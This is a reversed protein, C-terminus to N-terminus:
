NAINQGIELNKPWFSRLYAQYFSKTLRALIFKIPRVFSGEPFITLKPESFALKMPFFKKEQKSDNKFFLSSNESKIVYNYNILNKVEIIPTLIFNLIFVTKM